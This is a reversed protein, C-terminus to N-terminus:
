IGEPDCERKKEQGFWQLQKAWAKLEGKGDHEEENDEIGFQIGENVIEKSVFGEARGLALVPDSADRDTKAEFEM